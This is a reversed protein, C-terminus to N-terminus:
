VKYSYMGSRLIVYSGVIFFGLNVTIQIGIYSNFNIYSFNPPNSSIATAQM